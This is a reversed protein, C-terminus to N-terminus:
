AACRELVAFFTERLRPLAFDGAAAKRAAEGLRRRLAEDDLLRTLARGLAGADDEGVVVGSDRDRVYWSVFSDDPAHVLLPRGAALYDGLKGPASTKIVEPIASRFALPLFLLDASRVVRQAEDEGVQGHVEVCPGLIGHAALDSPPQSTYIVLKLDSRRSAELARVLNRFADFHAHYISGTYVITKEPRPRAQRDLADLDPLICPNRVIVSEIGLRRRYEDRMFENPVIVAAAQRMIPPELRRALARHTGSWQYAFDDFVYAVLAIKLRRAARHSAPLDFLDGTCALLLRCSERRAIDEIQASRRWLGWASNLAFSPAFLWSSTPAPLRALPPLTHHHFRSDAAGPQSSIMCFRAPDAGSLLRGLMIAQGNHAPPLTHSVVGIKRSNV